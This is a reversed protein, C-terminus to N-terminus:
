PGNTCRHQMGTAVKRNTFYLWAASHPPANPHEPGLVKQVSQRQNLSETDGYRGQEHCPVSNITAPSQSEISSRKFRNPVDPRAQAQYLQALFMKNTLFLRCESQEPERSLVKELIALPKYFEADRRLRGAIPIIWGLQQAIAAKPHEPGHAKEDIAVSSAMKQM